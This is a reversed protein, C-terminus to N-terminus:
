ATSLPTTVAPARPWCDSPESQSARDLGAAPLTQWPFPSIKPADDAKQKELAKM